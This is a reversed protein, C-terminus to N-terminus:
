SGSPSAQQAQISGDLGSGLRKAEHQLSSFRRTIQLPMEGRRERWADTSTFLDACGRLLWAWQQAFEASVEWSDIACPDGWLVLGRQNQSTEFGLMWYCLEDPDFAHEDGPNQSYLTEIINDRMQPFPIVDVWPHHATTRQLLTPSLPGLGQGKAVCATWSTADGTRGAVFPSASSEDLMQSPLLGLKGMICDFGQMVNFQVVCSLHDDSPSRSM